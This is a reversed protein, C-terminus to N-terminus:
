ELEIPNYPRTKLSITQIGAAEGYASPNDYANKATINFQERSTSFYDRDKIYIYENKKGKEIAVCEFSYDNKDDAVKLILGPLGNFKWPGESNPISPTYWVTYNRGRFTTTAKKCKYGCITNTVEQLKWNFKIIGETYKFNGAFPIRDTVTMKDSAPHRKYINIRSTGQYIPMTRNVVETFSMKQKAYLFQMSDVKLGFYDTFKSIKDGIQLLMFYHKKQNSNKTDKIHEMRYQVKLLCVDITDVESAEFAQNSNDQSSSIVVQSKVNLLFSLLLFISFTKKM